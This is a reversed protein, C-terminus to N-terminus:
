LEQPKEKSCVWRHKWKLFMRVCKKEQQSWIQWHSFFMEVKNIIKKNSIPIWSFYWADSSYQVHLIVEKVEINWQLTINSPMKSGHAIIVQRNWNSQINSITAPTCNTKIHEAILVPLSKVRLDRLRQMEFGSWETQPWLKKWGEWEDESTKNLKLMERRTTRHHSVSSSLFLTSLLLVGPSTLVACASSVCTSLHSLIVYRHDLDAQCKSPLAIEWWATCSLGWFSM